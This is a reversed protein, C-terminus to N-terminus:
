VGDVGKLLRVTPAEKSSIELQINGNRLTVDWYIEFRAAGREIKGNRAFSMPRHDKGVRRYMFIRRLLEDAAEIEAPSRNAQTWRKIRASDEDLLVDLHELACFCEEEFLFGPIPENRPTLRWKDGNRHQFLLEGEFDYQYLTNHKLDADRSPMGYAQDLKMWALHFTEKDGLFHRYYFDSHENLHMAINLAKWCRKKNVVIQGSEFERENRYPIGCISWIIRHPALRWIDPWFIAGTEIYEPTGFLFEPNRVPVNDADLYFVEEFESNMIAYPKMEWGGLTRV